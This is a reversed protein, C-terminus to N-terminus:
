PGPNPQQALRELLSFMKRVSETIPNSVTTIEYDGFTGAVRTQFVLRRLYDLTYHKAWNVLPIQDLVGEKKAVTVVLDLPAQKLPGEAAMDISGQMYVPASGGSFLLDEVKLHGGTIRFSGYADTVPSNRPMQLDLVNFVAVILPLNYLRGRSVKITGEGELARRETKRGSMQVEGRIVGSPAYQGEIGFAALLSELDIHSLEASTSWLWTETDCFGDQLLVKGGYAGITMNDVVFSHEHFRFDAALREADLSGFSLNELDASGKILPNHWDKASVRIRASGSAKMKKGHPALELHYLLTSIDATLGQQGNRNERVEAELSCQGTLGVAEAGLDRPLLKYLRDDLNINESVVHFYTGRSKKGLGIYGDGRLGVGFFEGSMDSFYMGENDLNVHGYIHEGIKGAEAHKLSTNRVDVMARVKKLFGAAGKGSPWWNRGRMELDFTGSADLNKMDLGLWNLIRQNLPLYRGVLSFDLEPPSGFTMQGAAQLPSGAFRARGNEFVVQRSGTRWQIELHPEDLAVPFEPIEAAKADLSLDLKVGEQTLGARGRLSPSRLGAKAIFKQVPRPLRDVLADTDTLDAFQVELDQTKIRGGSFRCTGSAEARGGFVRFVAQSLFLRGPSALRMSVDLESFSVSPEALSGAADAIELRGGYVAGGAPTWQLHGQGNVSGSISKLQLREPVAAALPSAALLSLDLTRLDLRLWASALEGQQFGLGATPIELCGGAVDARGSQLILVNERIVFDAFGNELSTEFAPHEASLGSIQVEGSLEPLVGGDRSFDLDLKGSMGAQLKLDSVSFKNDQGAGVPLSAFDKVSGSIRASVRSKEPDANYEMRFTNKGIGFSSSGLLRDGEAGPRAFFSFDRLTLPHPWSPREMHLVGDSVTVVPPAAGKQPGMDLGQAWKLFAPTIRAQMSKIYIKEPLYRGALLPFFAHAVRVDRLVFPPPASKETAGEKPAVTVTELYAGSFISFRMNEVQVKAQLYRGLRREMRPALFGPATLGWHLLIGAAALCLAIVGGWVAKRNKKM